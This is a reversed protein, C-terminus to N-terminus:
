TVLTAPPYKKNVLEMEIHKGTLECAILQQQTVASFANTCYLKDLM